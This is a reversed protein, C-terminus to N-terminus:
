QALPTQRIVLGEAARTSTTVQYTVVVTEQPGVNINALKVDHGYLAYSGVSAGSSVVVDSISGGAPAVLLLHMYMDGISRKDPSFGTVYAPAVEAEEQTISNALTTTLFYTVSGDANKVSDTVTTDLSLYWGMKAWTDDNVYVGLEPAAPDTPLEGAFGLRQIVGEEDVNDMWVLLRGEDAAEVVVELLDMMGISGLSSMVKDAVMGAVSAFFADQAEEDEGYYWYTDSLLVQAANTGDVVMGNEMTVGGTLSLLSQIFVPDMAIVGDITQGTYAEWASALLEGARSFDPTMNLNAPNIAMGEGFLAIEEETVDFTIDREGVITTFDGLNIAGDTITVIGWSGPFGGTARLEANNQAIILYTRTQGDAGLMQPLYPLVESVQTALDGAQVIGDTVQNLVSGLQEVHAEPLASVTDASHTLVPVVLQVTDSLQRILSVNITGHIMLESLQIGKVSEVVPGMANDVLDVLVDVITQVSSVDQGIVPIIEAVQWCLGDLENDVAHVADSIAEASSTLGEADGSTLSEKFSGVVSMAQDAQGQIRQYSQYVALGLIGAAMAIVVLAAVIGLVVALITHHRSGSRGGHSSGPNYSGRSSNPVVREYRSASRSYVSSSNSPGGESAGIAMHKAM